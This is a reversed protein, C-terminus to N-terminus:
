TVHSFYNGKHIASKFENLKDISRVSAPLMHWYKESRNPLNGDGFKTRMPPPKFSVSDDSRLNRQSLTINFLNNVNYSSMNHLAKFSEVVCHEKRESDLWNIGSQEHLKSSPFFHDVNLVAKLALNQQTQLKNSLTQSCADYIIDAYSFHPHIMTQYLDKALSESIFSRM